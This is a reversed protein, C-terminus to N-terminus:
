YVTSDQLRWRRLPGWWWMSWREEREGPVGGGNNKKKGTDDDDGDDDEMQTVERRRRRSETVGEVDVSSEVDGSAGEEREEIQAVGERRREIRERDRDHAERERLGFSGLGWGHVRPTRNAVEHEGERGYVENIIVVQKEAQRRAALIHATRLGLYGRHFLTYSASMARRWLPSNTNTNAANSNSAPTSGTATNITTTSASESRENSTTRSLPPSALQRTGDEDGEGDIVEEEVVVVQRTKGGGMVKEQVGKWVEKYKERKERRSKERERRKVRRKEEREMWEDVEGVGM